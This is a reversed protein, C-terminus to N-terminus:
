SEEPAFRETEIKSENITKPINIQPNTGAPKQLNQLYHPVYKDELSPMKVPNTDTISCAGGTISCAAFVPAAAFMAAILIIKKM